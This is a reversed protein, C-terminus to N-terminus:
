YDNFREFKLIHCAISKCELFLACCTTSKDTPSAEALGRM